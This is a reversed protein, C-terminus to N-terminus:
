KDDGGGHRRAIIHEVHYTFFPEAEQPMRLVRLSSKGQRPYITQTARRDLLTVKLYFDALKRKYFPSSTALEFWPRM